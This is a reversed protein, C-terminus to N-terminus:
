TTFIAMINLALFNSLYFTFTWTTIDPLIRQEPSYGALAFFSLAVPWMVQLSGCKSVPLAVRWNPSKNLQTKLKFICIASSQLHLRWPVSHTCEEPYQYHTLYWRKSDCQFFCLYCGLKRKIKFDRCKIHKIINWLMLDKFM